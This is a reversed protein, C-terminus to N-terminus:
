TPMTSDPPARRSGHLTSVTWKGIIGEPAFRNIMAVYDTMGAARYDRLMPFEPENQGTIHRRLLSEGTRLMHFFPSARWRAIAESEESGSLLRQDVVGEPLGTRGYEQVVPQSADHGWRVIRGEYVPHLTDIIILARSIPVGVAVARECFASVLTEEPEGRLGANTLWATLSEVGHVAM